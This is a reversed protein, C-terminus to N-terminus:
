AIADDDPAASRPAVVRAVYAMVVAAGILVIGLPPVIQAILQVLVGVVTLLGQDMATTGRGLALAYGLQPGLVTLLVGGVTLGIGWWLVVKPRLRSETM